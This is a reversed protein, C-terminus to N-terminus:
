GLKGMNAKYRASVTDWFKDVLSVFTYTGGVIAFVSTLFDYFPRKEMRVKIIMPSFNYSFRAEPVKDVDVDM